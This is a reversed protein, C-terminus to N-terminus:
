RKRVRSKIADQLESADPRDWFRALEVVDSEDEIEWGMVQEQSTVYTWEHRKWGKTSAHFKAERLTGALIFKV